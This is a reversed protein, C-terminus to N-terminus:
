IFIFILLNQKYPCEGFYPSTLFYNTLELYILININNNKIVVQGRHFGNFVNSYSADKLFATEGESAITQWFGDQLIILNQLYKIFFQLCMHTLVVFLVSNIHLIILSMEMLERNLFGKAIM